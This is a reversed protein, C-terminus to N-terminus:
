TSESLCMLGRSCRCEWELLGAVLVKCLVRMIVLTTLDDGESSLLPLTILCLPVMESETLLELAM